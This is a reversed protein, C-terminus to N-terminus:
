NNKTVNQCLPNTPICSNNTRSFYFSVFCEDCINLLQNITKCNNDTYPNPFQNSFTVPTNIVYFPLFAGNQNSQSNSETVLGPLSATSQALTTSSSSPASAIPQTVSLSGLSNTSISSLTCVGNKLAYNSSCSVCINNITQTCPNTKVVSNAAQNQLLAQWFAAIFDPNSFLQNALTVAQDSAPTNLGTSQAFIITVFMMCLLGRM